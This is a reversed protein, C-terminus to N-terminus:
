IGSWRRKNWHCRTDFMRRHVRLDRHVRPKYNNISRSPLSRSSRERTVPKPRPKQKAKPMPDASGSAPQPPEPDDYWDRLQDQVESEDDPPTLSVQIRGSNRRTSLTHRRQPHKHVCEERQPAQSYLHVDEIATACSAPKQHSGGWSLQVAHLYRVVTRRAGRTEAM